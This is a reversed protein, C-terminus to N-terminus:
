IRNPEPLDLYAPYAIDQPCATADFIIKGKTENSSSNSINDSGSSDLSDKESKRIDNHLIFNGQLEAIKENIANLSDMGLKKRFDVFLSADPPEKTFSTYGPFYQMYINVSMQEVAERDDPNGM